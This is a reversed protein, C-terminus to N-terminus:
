VDPASWDRGPPGEHLMLRGIAFGSGGVLDIVTRPDGAERSWTLEVTWARGPALGYLASVDSRRATIGPAVRAPQGPRIKGWDVVVRGLDSNILRFETRFNLQPSPPIYDFRVTWTGPTYLVPHRNADLRLRGDPAGRPRTYVTPGAALSLAEWGDSRWWSSRPDSSGLRNVAADANVTFRWDPPAEAQRGWIDTLAGAPVSVAFEQGLPLPESLPLVLRRGAIIPDPGTEAALDQSPRAQSADWSQLVRGDSRQRLVIDGDGPAVPAELMITLAPRGPAVSTDGPSPSLALVTLDKALAGPAPHGTEFDWWDESPHAGLAGQGARAISSGPAPRAMEIAEERTNPFWVLSDPRGPLSPKAASFQEALWAPDGLKLLQNNWSQAAKPASKPKSVSSAINDWVSVSTDWAGVSIRGTSRTASDSRTNFVNDGDLDGPFPTIVTNHHIYVGDQPKNRPVIQNPAMGWIINGAIEVDRFPVQNGDAYFGQYAPVPIKIQWAGPKGKAGHRANLEVAQWPRSLTISDQGDGLTDGSGSVLRITVPHPSQDAKQIALGIGNPPGKGRNVTSNALPLTVTVPGAKADVRLIRAAHDQRVTTDGSLYLPKYGPSLRPPVQVGERGPFSVNGRFRLGDIRTHENGHGAGTMWIHIMDGHLKWADGMFDHVTNHEITVDSFGGPREASGKSFYINLPDAGTHHIDNGRVLAHRTGSAIGYLLFGVECNTVATHRAGKLYVARTPTRLSYGLRGPMADSFIECDRITIEESQGRGSVMHLINITGGRNHKQSLAEPYYFTLGELIINGPVQGARSGRLVWNSILTGHEPERPRVTLPADLGTVKDEFLKGTAALDLWEAGILLTAGSKQSAPLSLFAAIDSYTEAAYSAPAVTVTLSHGQTFDIDVTDALTAAAQRPALYDWGAPGETLVWDQASGASVATIKAGKPVRIRGTEPGNLAGLVASRPLDLSRTWARKPAGDLSVGAANTLRLQILHERDKELGGLVYRRGAAPRDDLQQWASWPAVPDLTHDTPAHRWELMEAAAGNQYPLLVTELVIEGARGSPLVMWEDAGFATPPKPEGRWETAVERKGSWNGRGAATVAAVSIRKPRGPLFTTTEPPLYIHQWVGPDPALVLRMDFAGRRLRIGLVPGDAELARNLRFRLTYPEEPDPEIQWDQMNPAAPRATAREMEVPQSVSWDGKRVEGKEFSVVRLRIATTGDPVEKLRYLKRPATFPQPLTRIDDGPLFQVEIRFPVGPLDPIDDVRIQITGPTKSAYAAFDPAQAVAPIVSLLAFLLGLLVSTVFSAGRRRFSRAGSFGDPTM